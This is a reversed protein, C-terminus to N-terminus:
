EVPLDLLIVPRLGARFFAENIRGSLKTPKEMEAARKREGFWGPADLPASADQLAGTRQRKRLACDWM